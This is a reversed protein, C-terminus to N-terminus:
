KLSVFKNGKLYFRLLYNRAEQAYEINVRTSPVIESPSVKEGELFYLQNNEVSLGYFESGIQLAQTLKAPGNTLFRDEWGGSRNRRLIDIGERPEGARIFVAQPLNKKNVVVNLCCYIGYIKYIYFCGGQEYLVKNRSTLRGQYSHSAKDEIGLYAETEVIKVMAKGEPFERVLYRGLLDRAVEVADRIFFKTTLKRM